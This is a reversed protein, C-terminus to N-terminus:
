NKSRRLLIVQRRQYGNAYVWQQLAVHRHFFCEPADVSIAPFPVFM